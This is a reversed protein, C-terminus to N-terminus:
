GVSTIENCTLTFHLDLFSSSREKAYEIEEM